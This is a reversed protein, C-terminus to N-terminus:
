VVRNNPNGGTPPGLSSKPTLTEVFFKVRRQVNQLYKPVNLTMLTSYFPRSYLRHAEERQDPTVPRDDLYELKPLWSIVFLRSNPHLHNKLCVLITKAVLCTYRYQLYEYYTGGNLYSPAGSNGMLSLFKLNPFGKRVSEIFPHLKDILNHNLWLTTLTPVRPFVAESCIQNHDLILTTV